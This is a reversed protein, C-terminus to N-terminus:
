RTENNNNFERCVIRGKRQAGLTSWLWQAVSGARNCKGSSLEQCELLVDRTASQSTGGTGIPGPILTAGPFSCVESAQHLLGELLFAEQQIAAVQSM